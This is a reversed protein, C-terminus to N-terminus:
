LNGQLEKYLKEYNGDQRNLEYAKKAHLLAEEKKGSDILILALNYHAEHFSEDEEIAAMLHKEAAALKNQKIEAYSLYFFTQANPSGEEVVPILLKEAEEWNGNSIKEQAVGNVTDVDWTASDTVIGQWVLIGILLLSGVLFSIQKLPRVNHPLSVIGAVLFGGILGGLHGANDIGPLSFGLALNLLIVGIINPGMTRFFTSPHLVGFYLLAGFCGFIAGSAGASLNSTFLFSALTGTVGSLLYIVVFRTRGFMKEVAMGLYYLALTNMLLHLLGIHLFIPTVLRWWEGEIMLPNYKAGYEILTEPDKSGGNLELILFMIVQVAIFFYTFFPKGREFLQREKQVQRKSSTLTMNKIWDVNAELIEPPLEWEGENFLPDGKLMEVSKEGHLLMPQVKTKRHEVPVRLLDPDGDVPPYTSIYLNKITLQRKGLSKRIKEGNVTTMELDRKVWNGWDLDRKVIRIINAEKVRSNELWIEDQNQSLNLIRYEKYEVLHHAAKWFLYHYRLDM